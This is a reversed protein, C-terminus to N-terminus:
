SLNSILIVLMNKSNNTGKETSYVVKGFEIDLSSLALIKTELLGMQNFIDTIMNSGLAWLKELGSFSSFNKFCLKQQYYYKRMVEKTAERDEDDKIFANYKGM